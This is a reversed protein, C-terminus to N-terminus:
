QSTVVYSGRRQSDTSIDRRDGFHTTTGRSVNSHVVDVNDGRKFHNIGSKYEM